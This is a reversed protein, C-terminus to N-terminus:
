LPLLSHLMEVLKKVARERSYSNSVKNAREPLSTFLEREKWLGEIAKALAEPDDPPVALGLSESEILNATYGPVAAVIPKGFYLYDFLKNPLATAFTPINRLTLLYADAVALYKGLESREVPGTFLINTLGSQQAKAMLHAREQGEGVLVFRVPCGKAQVLRAAEVVVDLANAPGHAGSYMIVFSEGVDLHGRLEEVEVKGFVRFTSQSVGNPIMVLKDAWPGKDKIREAIGPTLAIISDAQRYLWAEARYLLNVLWRPTNPAMDVLTDPWLDRVEFVFRARRVRAVMASAMAGPLHPSSGIVIDPKETSFLGRVLFHISFVLMNLLRSLGNQSYRPTWLWHWRCDDAGESHQSFVRECGPRHFQKIVHIFSMAWVTVHWGNRSLEEAFEYHRGSAPYEPTVAYPNIMWVRPLDSKRSM